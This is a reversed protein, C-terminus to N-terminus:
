TTWDGAAVRALGQSRRKGGLGHPYLGYCMGCCLRVPLVAHVCGTEVDEADAIGDDVDHGGHWLREDGLVVHVLAAHGQDVRRCGVREVGGHRRALFAAAARRGIGARHGGRQPCPHGIDALNRVVLQALGEAAVDGGDADMEGGGRQQVSCGGRAAEDQHRRIPLAGHVGEQAGADREALGVHVRREDGLGGHNIEFAVQEVRWGGLSGEAAGGGGCVLSAALDRQGEGVWEADVAVAGGKAVQDGAM